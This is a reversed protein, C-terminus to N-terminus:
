RIARVTARAPRLKLKTVQVAVQGTRKPRIRLRAVGQANTTATRGAAAVKAGLVPHPRGAYVHRVTATITTRRGVRLHGPTVRLTLATEIPSVFSLLESHGAGYTPPGSTAFPSLLWHLVGGAADVLDLGESEAHVGPLEIELRAPTAGSVDVSWVQLVGAAEGALLLRGGAFVAGTIGSPPVAGAVRVVPHIPVADVGPAANAATIDATAYALLDKGASTWLLTGDPSVEAWMAKPIDAPDLAVWYRWALTAPDAVGIGGRGCTNGGNPGAPTYCELPLLLRGGEAGDFAPDGIHNFGIGQEVAAPILSASRKTERLSATARYGGKSLGTFYLNAAPDHTLGQFYELPVSRADSQAWLGPDAAPAAAASGLTLLAALAVARRLL